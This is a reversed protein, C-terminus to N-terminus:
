SKIQRPINMLSAMHVGFIVCISGIMSVFFIVYAWSSELRECALVSVKSYKSSMGIRTQVSSASDRYWEVEEPGNSPFLIPELKREGIPSIAWHKIILSGYASTYSRYLHGVSFTCLLVLALVAGIKPLFLKKNFAIIILKTFLFGVFGGAMM